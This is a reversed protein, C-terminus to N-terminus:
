GERDQGDTGSGELLNKITLLLENFDATKVTYDDAGSKRAEVADVADINGTMVIIKTGGPLNADRIRRCTEFGNIGPLVTDIIVLDPDIATAKDVGEEGNEAMATEYGEEILKDNILALVTPSDEIILIKVGM